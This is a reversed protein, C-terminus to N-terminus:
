LFQFGGVAYLPINVMWGQDQYGLMSIRVGKLSYEPHSKIYTAMSKAKVNTEAKVEIPIVRQENQVVFDIESPTTDNSWYYPKIDCAVMQQLVYQETFAGKFERFVNDGILMQGVPADVMCGLLGCDLFFLKFASLDEYFKVPMQLDKVRCVKHVIGADVLWQIALEYEKTREGKNEKILQSPLSQLVQGIRISESKTSHKSIDCRYAELIERQQVRVMKLDRNEVYKSVVEPMGGVYYYQRLLEIYTTRNQEIVKWNKNYILNCFKKKGMAMLFEEFSLPYIKLMNVKGVPFSNDGGLTLGLLSGAAMVYYEPANEQFYKLCHLGRTAEQLEDFIVLTKRPEVKTKTIAQITLLIQPINYDAFMNKAMPEEDCNIYAVSQFDTEAFHKMIWTKGVQRAGLLILPKRNPNAKWERLKEIIKREM